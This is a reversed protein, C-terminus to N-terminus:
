GAVRQQVLGSNVGYLLPTILGGHEVVLGHGNYRGYGHGKRERLLVCPLAVM